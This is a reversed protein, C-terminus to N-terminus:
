PLRRRTRDVHERRDLRASAARYSWAAGVFGSLAIAALWLERLSHM